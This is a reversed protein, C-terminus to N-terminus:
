EGDKMRCAGCMRNHPGESQFKANCRVGESNVRVCERMSYKAWRDLKERVNEAEDNNAVEAQVKGNADVIQFPKLRGGLRRTIRHPAPSPNQLPGPLKIRDMTPRKIRTM